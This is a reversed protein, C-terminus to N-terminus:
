QPEVASVTAQQNKFTVNQISNLCFQRQYATLLAVSSVSLFISSLILPFSSTILCSPYSPHSSLMVPSLFVSSILSSPYSYLSVSLLMLPYSPHCFSAPSTLYFSFFPFIVPPCVPPHPSLFPHLPFHYMHPYSLFPYVTTFLTPLCTCLILIFSVVCYQYVSVLCPCSLLIM